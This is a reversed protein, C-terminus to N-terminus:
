RGNGRDPWRVREFPWERAIWERVARELIPDLGDHWADRRVWLRVVADAEADAYVYVCGLVRSEDPSVVTYAFSRRLQFEKEHWGLDVLNQRHTLGPSGLFTGDPGVRELVAEYDLDVDDVSLMRLRFREHELRGPPTFGDPLRLAPALGRSALERARDNADSM